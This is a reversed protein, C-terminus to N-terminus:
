VKEEKEAAYIVVKLVHSARVCTVLVNEYEHIYCM